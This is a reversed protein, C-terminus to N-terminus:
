SQVDLRFSLQVSVRFSKVKGGDILIDHHTINAKRLDKLSRGSTEVAQKAADEWSFPSTGVVEIVKYLNEAMIEEGGGSLLRLRDM